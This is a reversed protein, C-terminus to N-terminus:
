PGAADLVRGLHDVLFRRPRPRQLELSLIGRARAASGGVWVILDPADLYLADLLDDDTGRSDTREEASREKGRSRYPDPM